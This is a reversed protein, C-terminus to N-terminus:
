MLRTEVHERLAAVYPVLGHLDQTRFDDELQRIAVRLEALEALSLPQRRHELSKVAEHARTALVRLTAAMEAPDRRYYTRMTRGEFTHARPSAPNRTNRKQHHQTKLIQTM